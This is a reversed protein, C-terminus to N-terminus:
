KFVLVNESDTGFLEVGNKQQEMLYSVIDKSFVEGPWIIAIGPPYTGVAQACVQGQAHCLKVQEVENGHSSTIPIKLHYPKQQKITEGAPPLALVAKEFRKVAQRDWPASLAVVRKNDCMEIEVGGNSKLIPKATYGTLGRLSVDVVLRTSDYAYIEGNEFADKVPMSLGDAKSIRESVAQCFKVHDIWEQKQTFLRKRAIDLSAMIPYSSSSTHVMMLARKLNTYSVGKKHADKGIHLFGGQGMASITKHASDVWIDAYLGAYEPLSPDGVAFHTGHSADVLLIMNKEDCAKKIAHLDTCIGYYNPSTVIVAVADKNDDMVLAIDKAQACAPLHDEIIKPKVFVPKLCNLEIGSAVSRHCDRSVIIKSGKKLSLLMALVGSTAGCTLFHTKYAGFAEAALSMGQLIAGSPSFLDDTQDLETVDFELANFEYGDNIGKGAKHGPMYLRAYNKETYSKLMNLIPTQNQM